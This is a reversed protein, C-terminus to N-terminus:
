ITSGVGHDSLELQQQTRKAFQNHYDKAQQENFAYNHFQLDYLEGIFPNNGDQDTALVVLNSSDTNGTAVGEVLVGNVYFLLLTEINVAVFDYEQGATVTTSKNITSGDYLQLVLAGNKVNIATRDTGDIGSSLICQTGTPDYTKFRGTITWIVDVGILDSLDSGLNIKPVSQAKQDFAMGNKCHTGFNITGNNGEGSIDVLTSGNPIMNYAAVLGTVKMVSLVEIWVSEGASLDSGRIYPVTGDNEIVGSTYTIGETHGVLDTRYLLSGNRIEVRASAGESFKCRFVVIMKDGDAFDEFTTNDGVVRLYQYGGSSNDVFDLKVFNGDQSKTNSGYLNWVSVDNAVFGVDADPVLEEGNWEKISFNTFAFSGVEFSNLFTVVGVATTNVTLLVANHGSVARVNGDDSISSGGISVALFLVPLQGTGSSDYEVIYTKGAVFSIEDPTGFRHTGSGDTSGSITEANISAFTTYGSNVWPSVNLVTPDYEPVGIRSDVLHSLDTPKPYSLPVPVSKTTPGSRLFEQYLNARESATLIHDYFKFYAMNGEVKRAVGSGQSMLNIHTTSKLTGSIVTSDVPNDNCYYLVTHTSVDYSIIMLKWNSDEIPSDWLFSPYAGEVVQTLFRSPTISIGQMYEQEAATGFTVYGRWLDGFSSKKIRTAMVITWDQHLNYSKQFTIHSDSATAGDIALGKETKHFNTNVSTGVVGGVSDILTGKRFDIDFIKGM